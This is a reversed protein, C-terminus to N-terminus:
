NNLLLKKIDYISNIIYDASKTNTPRSWSKGDLWITTCGLLKAPQIDRLYSDGIVVSSEPATKLENLALLFIKPNPKSIEVESSDIVSDFFNNIEFESLVANINGYFNSVLAMSYNDSLQKLLSKVNFTKEKVYNYCNDTIKPILNQYEKKDLLKNDFLFKFQFYIQTDLTKKFIDNVSLAQEVNPEGKRYAEEYQKKNIPINFKQYCEWFKESWHIGDTDITGGFDFILSKINELKKM